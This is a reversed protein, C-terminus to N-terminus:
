HANVEPYEEPNVIEVNKPLGNIWPVGEVKYRGGILESRRKGNIFACVTTGSVGIAKGAIASSAYITETEKLTDIIKYLKRPPQDRGKSRIGRPLAPLPELGLYKWKKGRIIQLIHEQQVGYLNAIDVHRMKGKKCLNYIEVVDEESLYNSYSDEGIRRGLIYSAHIGNDQPTSWELNEVRNDNKIGNKHNIEPLNEINPIFASAVVRHIGSHKGLEGLDVSCSVYSPSV